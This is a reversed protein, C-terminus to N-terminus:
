EDVDATAATANEPRPTLKADANVIMQIQFRRLTKGSKGPVTYSESILLSVDHFLPSRHLESLYHAVEVDTDALGSIKVSVEM